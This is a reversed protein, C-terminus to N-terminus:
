NGQGPTCPRARAQLQLRLSQEEELEKLAQRHTATHPALLTGHAHQQPTYLYVKPFHTIEPPALESTNAVDQVSSDGRDKSRLRARAGGHMLQKGMKQFVPSNSREKRPQPKSPSKMSLLDDHTEEWPSLSLEPQRPKPEPYTDQWEM